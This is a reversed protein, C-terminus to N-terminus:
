FVELDEEDVYHWGGDDFQVLYMPAYNPGVATDEVSGLRDGLRVREGIDYKFNIIM